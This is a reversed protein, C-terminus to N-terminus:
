KVFIAHMEKENRALLHGGDSSILAKRMCLMIVRRLWHQRPTGSGQVWLQLIYLPRGTDYEFQSPVRPWTASLLDTAIAVERATRRLQQKQARKLQDFSQTLSPQSPAPQSPAPQSPAPQTQGNPPIDVPQLVPRKVFLTVCHHPGVSKVERMDELGGSHALPFICELRVLARVETGALCAEYVPEWSPATRPEEARVALLVHRDATSM